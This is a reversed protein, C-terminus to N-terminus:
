NEHSLGTQILQLRSPKAQCNARYNKEFLKDPNKYPHFSFLFSLFDPPNIISLFFRAFLYKRSSQRASLRASRPPHPIVAWLEVVIHKQSTHPCDLYPFKGARLFVLCLVVVVCGFRRPPTFPAHALLLLNEASEVLNFDKPVFVARPGRHELGNLALRGLSVIVREMLQASLM